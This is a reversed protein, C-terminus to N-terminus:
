EIKEFYDEIQVKISEAMIMLDLTDNTPNFDLLEKEIVKLSDEKAEKTISSEEDNNLDFKKQLLSINSNYSSLLINKSDAVLEKISKPIIYKNSSYFSDFELYNITWLDINVKNKNQELSTLIQALAGKLNCSYSYMESLKSIQIENFVSFKLESKKLQNRYKDILRSTFITQSITILTLLLFLVILILLQFDKVNDIHATIQKIIEKEM